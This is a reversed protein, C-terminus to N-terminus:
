DSLRTPSTAVGHVTAQWAGGDIFPNKLCSYQLPNGQSGGSPRGLRPIPGLDGANYTSENDNSGRPFGLFVPTPLRDRRWFIDQGLFRVLTEQIVHLNKILQAVM